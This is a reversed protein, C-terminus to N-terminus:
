FQFVLSDHSYFEHIRHAKEGLAPTKCNQRIPLSLRLWINKGIKQPLLRNYQNEPTKARPPMTGGKGLPWALYETGSQELHSKNGSPKLVARRLQPASRRSRSERIAAPKRSRHRPVRSCEPVRLRGTVGPIM